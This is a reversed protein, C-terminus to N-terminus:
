HASRRYLLWTDTSAVEHFDANLYDGYVQLLIEVTKFTYELKPDTMRPVMVLSADGFFEKATVIHNQDFSFNLDRWLYYDHAPPLGLAFSFPNAFAITIVRDNPGSHQRLLEIGDNIRDPHDRSPWYATIRKTSQPVYFDRLTVSQMRRSDAYLPRRLAHWAVDYACSAIDRALITGCLVPLLFSMSVVYISRAATHPKTLEETNGRRFLELSIVAAIWYLPDDAGGGQSANGSVIFLAGGTISLAILGTGLVSNRSWGARYETWTLLAVCFILMYIWYANTELGQLLLKTRMSSSQCQAASAIDALYRFLSIRLLVFFALCISAFAGALTLFWLLPRRERVVGLLTLGAAVVLYTIKCYLLLALLTGVILGEVSDSGRGCSTPRLFVCLLLLSLLVYGQRNYIMAYTTDFIAYGPPRPTVLYFGLFLVVVSAVFWPLRKSTIYWALPLLFALLLASGYAISSTSPSAIKMGFAVLLYCLPGIPTHYDTHPAQGNLIRWGGDLLSVVDWPGAIPAAGTMVLVAVVPVFLILLFLGALRYGRPSESCLFQSLKENIGAARPSAAGASPALLHSTGLGGMFWRKLLTACSGM